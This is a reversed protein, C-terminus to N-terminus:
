PKSMASSWTASSSSADGCSRGTGSAASSMPIYGLFGEDRSPLREEGKENGGPRRRLASARDSQDLSVSEAGREEGAGPMSAPHPM